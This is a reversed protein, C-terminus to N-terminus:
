DDFRRMMEQMAQKRALIDRVRPGLNPRMRELDAQARALAEAYLEDHDGPSGRWPGKPKRERREQRDWARALSEEYARWAKTPDRPPDRSDLGHLKRMRERDADTPERAQQAALKAELADAKANANDREAPFTTSRALARLQDILRRSM